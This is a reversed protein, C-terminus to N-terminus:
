RTSVLESDTWRWGHYDVGNLTKPMREIIAKLYAACVHDFESLYETYGKHIAPISGVHIGSFGPVLHEMDEAWEEHRKTHAYAYGWQRGAISDSIHIQETGAWHAITFNRLKWLSKILETWKPSKNHSIKLELERNIRNLEYYIFRYGNDLMFFFITYSFLSQFIRPKFEQFAQFELVAQKDKEKINSFSPYARSAATWDQIVQELMTWIVPVNEMVQSEPIYLIVLKNNDIVEIPIQKSLELTHM